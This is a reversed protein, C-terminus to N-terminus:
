AIAGGPRTNPDARRLAKRGIALRGEEGDDVVLLHKAVGVVDVAEERGVDDHEVLRLADLVPLCLRRAPDLRQARRVGEHQGARRDLVADVLEVRDDLVEIRLQEPRQEAEVAVEIFEVLAAARDVVLVEGLQAVAHRRHHQAPALGVDLGLQGAARDLVVEHRHGLLLAQAVFLVASLRRASIALRLPPRQPGLFEVPQLLQEGAHAHDAVRRRDEIRGAADAGLELLQLADEAIQEFLRIALDDDEGFPLPHQCHHAFERAFHADLGGPVGARHRLLAAAGLDVAELLSGAQRSNRDVSLPLTPSLRCTALATTLTSRGHFGALSSCRMARAQRLFWVRETVTTLRTASSVISCPM